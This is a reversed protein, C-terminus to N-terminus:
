LQLCCLIFETLMNIYLKCFLLDALLCTLVALCKWTFKILENLKWWVWCGGQGALKGWQQSPILQWRWSKVKQQHHLVKPPFTLPLYRWTVGRHLPMVMLHWLGTVWKFCWKLPFKRKLLVKFSHGGVNNVQIDPPCHFYSSGSSLLKLIFDPSHCLQQAGSGGSLFCWDRLICHQEAQRTNLHSVPLPRKKLTGLCHRDVDNVHIGPSCGQQISSSHQSCHHKKLLALDCREGSALYM